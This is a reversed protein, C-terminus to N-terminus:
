NLGAAALESESADILQSDRVTSRRALDVAALFERVAAESTVCGSPTFLAKLKVGHTGQKIWRYLTAPSVPKGGDRRPIWHSRAYNIPRLLDAPTDAISNPTKM